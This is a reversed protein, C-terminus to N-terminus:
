WAPAYRGPIKSEMANSVILIDRLPDEGATLKMQGSGKLGIAFGSGDPQALFGGLVEPGEYKWKLKNARFDIVALHTPVGDVWPATTVLVLSNDASFALVGQEPTL